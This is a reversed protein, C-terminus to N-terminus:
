DSVWASDNDPGLCPAIGRRAIKYRNSAQRPMWLIQPTRIESTRSLQKAFDRVLTAVHDDYSFPLLTM